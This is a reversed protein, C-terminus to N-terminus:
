YLRPLNKNSKVLKPEEFSEQLGQEAQVQSTKHWYMKGM